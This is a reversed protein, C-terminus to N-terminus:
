KELREYLSFIISNLTAVMFISLVTWETLEFYYYDITITYVSAMCTCCGIIPKLIYILTKFQIKKIRAKHNCDYIADYFDLASICYEYPMRLFYLIMGKSSVVRLGVIALSIIIAREIM